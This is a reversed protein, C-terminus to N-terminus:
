ESEELLQIDIRQGSVIASAIEDMRAMLLRRVGRARMTQPTDFSYPQVFYGADSSDDDLWLGDADRTTYIRIRV